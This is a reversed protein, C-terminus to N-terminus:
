DFHNSEINFKMPRANLERETFFDANANQNTSTYYIHWAQGSFSFFERITTRKVVECVNSFNSEPYELLTM